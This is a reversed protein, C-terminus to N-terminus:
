SYGLEALSFHLPLNCAMPQSPKLTILKGQWLVALLPAQLCLPNVWMCVLQATVLSSIAALYPLPTYSRLIALGMVQLNLKDPSNSKSVTPLNLVTPQQTVPSVWSRTLLFLILRLKIWCDSADLCRLILVTKITCLIWPLLCCLFKNLTDAAVKTGRLIATSIAM